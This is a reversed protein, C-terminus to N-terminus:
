PTPEVGLLREVLGSNRRATTQLGHALSAETACIVLSSKARTVATYILARHLGIKELQASDLEPLILTVADFESGQAKHVTMAFAPVIDSLLNVEFPVLKTAGADPALDDEVGADKTTHAEFYLMLVGNADPWCLGVDGNMIGLRYDNRTAMLLQGRFYPGAGRWKFRRKLGAEIVSNAHRQGAPGDHLVCLVRAKNRQAFAAEVTNATHLGDWLGADIQQQLLQEPANGSAAKVVLSSLISPYLFPTLAQLADQHSRIAQAAGSLEANARWQQKLEIACGSLPNNNQFAVQLLDAFPTGSEVASLQNADGLLLLQSQPALAGFIAHMLTLSLMSAEDVLLIDVALPADIGASFRDLQPQFGLLRHVTRSQIDNLADFLQPEVTSEKHLQTLQATFAESLRAAAKGTPACLAVIPTRGYRKLWARAAQLVLFAAATTKGTGPGGTLLFLHKSILTSAAIELLALTPSSAAALARTDTDVRVHAMIRAALQSQVHWLRRLYIQSDCVVLARGVHANADSHTTHATMPCSRLAALWSALEPWRLPEALPEILGAIGGAADNLDFFSNGDLEARIALAAALGSELPAGQRLLLDCAAAELPSLVLRWPRPLTLRAAFNMPPAANPANQGTSGVSNLMEMPKLTGRFSRAHPNQDSCIANQFHSAVGLALHM